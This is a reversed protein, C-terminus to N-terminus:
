HEAAVQPEPDPLEAIWRLLHQNFQEPRAQHLWHGAGEWGVAESGAPLDLAGEWAARAPDQYFSLVPSTLGGLYAASQEAYGFQDAPEYMARFASRVVQPDGGLTRRRHWAVLAPSIEAGEVGGLAGVALEVAPVAPDGLMAVVQGILDGVPGQAGYAGEVSVIGVVRDPQQVGCAVAVMAGLSHGVFVAPGCGIQELLAFVDRALQRPDYGDGPDSSRGHGRLDIAIVRHEAALAALQWSWDHSDCTWGHVLVVPLAGEGEDTYFLRLDDLDAFPM